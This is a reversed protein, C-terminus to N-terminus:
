KRDGGGSSVFEKSTTKTPLNNTKDAPRCCKKGSDAPSRKPGTGAGGSAGSRVTDCPCCSHVSSRTTDMAEIKEVKSPAAPVRHQRDGSAKKKEQEPKDSLPLRLEDQLSQPKKQGEQREQDQTQKASSPQSPKEPQLYIEPTRWVIISGAACASVVFRRDPSFKTCTVAGAHGLGMHTYIGEQYKWIKVIQDNCGTVFLQGDASIDLGNVAGVKSAELERALNGSGAEWYAVRRDTGGTLLQCGLPEFCVCMFLTSAYMVQRRSLSMLDWIICSGDTGASVAECDNPSVQIASVPSKHEKLVKKLMQKEPKIDWVRVQGECGGSILTNGSSNMALASTGKNHTNFIAYMLRGTLPTFARITGDNWGSVISKGDGSFLVSSCTFNPVSIRLLEQCTELCWVRVDGSGATAFVGSMGRPFAIDNIACRHCTVCLVPALTDVSLAYIESSRTAALLRRAGARHAPSEMLELSTICGPLKASRLAKFYPMNPDLLRGRPFEGKWNIEDLIDITGDGAGVILCGDSMILIAEVGQSYCQSEPRKGKKWPGCKALCGILAPKCAAVDANPDSPYNISFKVMDGTTTGAIGYSDDRSVAICRVSRRLKGLAVDVVDLAKSQARINWVRLNSDGGTIFSNPRCSLATLTVADGTTLRAAPATGTAAGAACDWLVVCGDDRGGLSIMYREDSSFMLAEVRVKHLEHSGLLMKKKFDWLKAAAKFGVHNIQGSGVYRGGSSVGVASVSNTHGSLFWMQKSTWHQICVKNGMPYIVHDGDPHVKLGRIASGDFGIIAYTELNKVDM